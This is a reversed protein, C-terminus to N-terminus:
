KSRQSDKVPNINNNGGKTQRKSRERAAQPRKNDYKATTGEDAANNGNASASSMMSVASPRPQHM